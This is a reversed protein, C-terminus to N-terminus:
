KGVLCKIYEKLTDIRNEELVIGEEYTDSKKLRFSDKGEVNCIHILGTSCSALIVGDNCDFVNWGGGWPYEDSEVFEDKIKNYEYNTKNTYGMIFLRSYRWPIFDIFYCMGEEEKSLPVVYEKQLDFYKNILFVKNQNRSTIWFRGDFFTVSSFGTKANKVEHISYKHDKLDLVLLANGKCYPVVFIDDCICGKCFFHKESSNTTYKNLKDAVGHIYEVEDTRMDYVMIVPISSGLVYIKTEYIYAGLFLEGSVDLREPLRINVKKTIGTDVNFRVVGDANFPFLYINKKYGIMSSFGRIINEDCVNVNMVIKKSKIDFAILESTDFDVFYCKDDIVTACEFSHFVGGIGNVM